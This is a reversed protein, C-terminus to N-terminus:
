PTASPRIKYSLTYKAKFTLGLPLLGVNAAGYYLSVRVLPLHLGDVTVSARTRRVGDVYAFTNRGDMVGGGGLSLWTVVNLSNDTDLEGEVRRLVRANNPPEICSLGHEFKTPGGGIGRSHFAIDVSKITTLPLTLPAATSPEPVKVLLARVADAPAAFNVGQAGPIGAVAVGILEGKATLVPGGSVGPNMSAGVQILGLQTRLASVIGRTVTVDTHGFEPALPYGVVIVEEGVRTEAPGATNIPVLGTQAIRLLAVDSASDIQIVDAPQPDGGPLAVSVERADEVVHLATILLGSPGVVFASGSVPSEGKALVFAVSPRVAAVVDPIDQSYGPPVVGGVVLSVVAAALLGALRQCPRRCAPATRSSLM